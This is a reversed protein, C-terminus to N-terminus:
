TLDQRSAAAFGGALLLIGTALALTVSAATSSDPFCSDRLYPNV